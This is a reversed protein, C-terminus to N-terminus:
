GAFWKGQKRGAVSEYMRERESPTLAVRRATGVAGTDTGTSHMSTSEERTSFHQRMTASTSIASRSAFARGFSSSRASEYQLLTDGRISLRRATTSLISVRVARSNQGIGM